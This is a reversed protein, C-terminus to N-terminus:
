KKPKVYSHLALLGALGTLMEVYQWHGLSALLAALGSLIAAWVRRQSLYRVLKQKLSEVKKKAM